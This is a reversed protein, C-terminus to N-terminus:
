RNRGWKWSSRDLRLEVGASLFLARLDQNEPVLGVRAHLRAFMMGDYEQYLYGVSADAVPGSGADSPRTVAAWAYGALLSVFFGRREGYSNTLPSLDIRGGAMLAHHLVHDDEGNLFALMDGRALAMFNKHLFWAGEIGVGAFPPSYGIQTGYGSLPIDFGLALRSKPEKQVVFDCGGGFHQTPTAGISVGVHGVVAQVDRSDGLISTTDFWLGQLWRLGFRVGALQYSLDLGALFGNEDGPSTMATYGALVDLELYRWMGNRYGGHLIFSGGAMAAVHTVDGTGVDDRGNGDVDVGADRGAWRDFRAIAGIRSTIRRRAEFGFTWARHMNPFGSDQWGSGVEGGFGWDLGRVTRVYPDCTQPGREPTLEDVSECRASTACLLAAHVYGVCPSDDSQCALQAYAVLGAPGYLQAYRSLAARADDAVISYLQEEQLQTVQEGVIGVKRLEAFRPASERLLAAEDAHTTALNDLNQLARGCGECTAVPAPTPQARATTSAVILVLLVFRV